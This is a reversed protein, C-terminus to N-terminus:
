DLRELELALLASAAPDTFEIGMGRTHPHPDTPRNAWAVRGEIEHLTDGGPLRFRVVVRDHEDLTEQTAIFLGGAGLTTATGKQPGWPTDYAVEVRVTRRRYRRTRRPREVPM